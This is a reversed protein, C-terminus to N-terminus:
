GGLLQGHPCPHVWPLRRPAGHPVGEGRGRVGGETVAPLPWELTPQPDPDRGGLGAPSGAGGREAGPGQEGDQPISGPRILLGGMATGWLELCGVQQLVETPGSILILPVEEPSRSWGRSGGSLGGPNVKM